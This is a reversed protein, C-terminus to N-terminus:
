PDVGPTPDDLAILENLQAIRGRVDATQVPDLLLSDNKERLDDRERKMHELLRRWLGNQKDGNTLAFRM